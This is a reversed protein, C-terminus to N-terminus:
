VNAADELPVVDVELDARFPLDGGRQRRQTLARLSGRLLGLEDERSVALGELRFAQLPRALRDGALIGVKVIM